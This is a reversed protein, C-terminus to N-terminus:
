RENEEILRIIEQAAVSLYGNEPRVLCVTWFPRYRKPISYVECNAVDILEGIYQENIFAMAYGIEVLRKSTEFNEIEMVIKPIVNARNLIADMCRRLCHKRSELVVPQQELHKLDLVPYPYGTMRTAQGAYGSGRHALICIYDKKLVQYSLFQGGMCAAAEEVCHVVAFDLQRLSVMEELVSSSGEKIQIEVNPYKAAFERMIMPLLMTCINRTMGIRVRGGRMESIDVLKQQFDNYIDLIDVAMAYYIEGAYTMKMGEQTREFLRAGISKELIKLCHSLAPQTMFLKSAASTINKEEAITKIYLLEKDTM